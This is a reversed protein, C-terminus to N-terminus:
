GNGQEHLSHVVNISVTYEACLITFCLRLWHCGRRIIPRGWGGFRSDMWIMEPERGAAGATRRGDVEERPRRGRGRTGPHDARQVSGGAALGRGDQQSVDKGARASRSSPPTSSRSSSDRPKTPASHQNASLQFRTIRSSSM